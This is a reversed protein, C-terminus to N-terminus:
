VGLRKPGALFRKLSSYLWPVSLGRGRESHLLDSNSLPELNTM